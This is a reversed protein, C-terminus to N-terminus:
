SLMSYCVCRPFQLKLYLLCFNEVPFLHFSFLIGLSPLYNLQYRIQKVQMLAQTQDWPYVCLVWACQCTSAIVATFLFYCTIGQLESSLWLLQPHGFWQSVCGRSVLHITNSCGCKFNDESGGCMHVYSNVYERDWICPGRHTYIYMYM